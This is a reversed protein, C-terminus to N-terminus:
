REFIKAAIEEINERDERSLKKLNLIIDNFLNKSLHEAFIEVEKKIETELEIKNYLTKLERAIIKSNSSKIDKIVPVIQQWNIWKKISNLKKEIIKKVEKLKALRYEQNKEKQRNLDDLNYVTIEFKEKVLPEI